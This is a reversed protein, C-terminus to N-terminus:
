RLGDLAAVRYPLVPVSTEGPLRLVPTGARTLLSRIVTSARRSRPVVARRVFPDCSAAVIEDLIAGYLHFATRICGQSGGTLMTVGTAAAAYHTRARDVEFWVLARLPATAERRRAARRLDGPSVHFRDLDTRPLYIRGRDLDEGIDRIFNTLQFALGLQRAPERAAVPDPAGLIPLMMTGIVAASGEMYGLLDDYTAYSTVELDMAMSRLFSAFDATDLDFARITDLVAPLIPDDSPAGALGAMFAESWDRLRRAREGPPLDVTSDVIDDTHRTFGYLAHVHSRKWAPLLRTALFYTRGHRRHLDRCYAYSAATGSDM